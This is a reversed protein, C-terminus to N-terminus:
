KLLIFYFGTDTIRSQSNVRYRQENKNHKSKNKFTRNNDNLPSLSGRHLDNDSKLTQSKSRSCEEQNQLSGQHTRLRGSTKSKNQIYNINFINGKGTDLLAKQNNNKSKQQQQHQLSFEMTRSISSSSSSPSAIATLSTGAGIEEEEDDEEDEDDENECEDEEYDSGVSISSQVKEHVWSPTIRPRPLTKLSFFNIFKLIVSIM